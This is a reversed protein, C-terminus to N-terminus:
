HPLSPSSHSHDVYTVGQKEQTTYKNSIIFLSSVQYCVQNSFLIKINDAFVAKVLIACNILLALNLKLIMTELRSWFDTWNWVKGFTKM